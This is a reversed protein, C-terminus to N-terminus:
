RSYALAPIPPGGSAGTVTDSHGELLTLLKWPGWPKSWVRICSDASGTLLLPKKSHPQFAVAWVNSKCDLSAFANSRIPPTESIGALSPIHLTKRSHVHVKNDWSATALYEGEHGFALSWIWYDHNHLEHYPVWRRIDEAADSASIEGNEPVTLPRPRHYLIVSKDYSGSVMIEGSPNFAVSSVEGEHTQPM